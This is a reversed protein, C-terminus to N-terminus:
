RRTAGGGCSFGSEYALFAAARGQLERSPGIRRFDVRTRALGSRVVNTMVQTLAAGSCSHRGAGFPVSTLRSFPCGSASGLFLYVADGPEVAEDGITDAAICTRMVFNTPVIAYSDVADARRLADEPTLGDRLASSFANILATLLALLPSVGMLLLSLVAAQGGEDLSEFGIAGCCNGIAEDCRALSSLTPFPNFFDVAFLDRSPLEVASGTLASISRSFILLVLRSAIADAPAPDVAAAEEIAEDIDADAIGRVGAACRELAHHMLQRRRQHEPGDVMILGIDCFRRIWATREPKAITLIQALFNCQRYRSSQLVARARQADCVVFTAPGVGDPRLAVTPPEIPPFRDHLRRGTISRITDLLRLFNM